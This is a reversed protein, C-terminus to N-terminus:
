KTEGKGAVRVAALDKWHKIKQIEHSTLQVECSSDCRWLEMDARTIQQGHIGRRKPVMSMEIDCFPCNYNSM